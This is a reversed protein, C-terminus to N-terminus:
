PRRAVRLLALRQGESDALVPDEGRGLHRYLHSGARRGPINPSVLELGDFFRAIDAYSRFHMSESAKDFVARFREVTLPPKREDTLHSLSLYSGPPMADMYRLVLGWPDASDSVFMLVATM